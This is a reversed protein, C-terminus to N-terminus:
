LKLGIKLNITISPFWKAGSEYDKDYPFEHQGSGEGKKGENRSSIYRLGLGLAPDFHLPGVIRFQYGAMAHTTFLDRFVEYDNNVGNNYTEHMGALTHQWLVQPGLHFGSFPKEGSFLYFRYEGSLQIGNVKETHISTYPRSCSACPFIYMLDVELSKNKGASFEVGLQVGMSNTVQDGLLSILDYKMIIGKRNLGDSTQAQSLFSYFICALILLYSKSIKM